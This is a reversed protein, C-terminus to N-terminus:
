GLCEGERREMDPLGGEPWGGGGAVVGGGGSFKEPPSKRGFGFYCRKVMDIRIWGLGSAAVRWRTVVVEVDDDGGNGGVLTRETPQLLVLFPAQKPKFWWWSDHPKSVVLPNPKMCRGLHTETPCGGRGEGGAVEAGGLPM